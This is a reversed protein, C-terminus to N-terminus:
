LIYELLSRQDSPASDIDEKYHLYMEAVKLGATHLDIVPKTGVYDTTFSMHGFKVPSKPILKIEKTNAFQLDINGCIHILLEDNTFNFNKDNM